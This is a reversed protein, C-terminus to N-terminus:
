LLTLSQVEDHVAITLLLLFLFSDLVGKTIEIRDTSSYGCFFLRFSM